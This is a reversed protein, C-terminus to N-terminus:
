LHMGVGVSIAISKIITHGLVSSGVIPHTEFMDTESWSCAKKICPSTTRVFTLMCSTMYPVIAPEAQISRPKVYDLEATMHVPVHWDTYAGM